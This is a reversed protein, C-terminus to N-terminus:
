FPLSNSCGALGWSSKVKIMEYPSSTEGFKLIVNCSNSVRETEIADQSLDNLLSFNINVYGRTDILWLLNFLKASSLIFFSVILEISKVLMISSDALM